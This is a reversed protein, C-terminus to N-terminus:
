LQIRTRLQYGQREIMTLCQEVPLFGLKKKLRGLEMTLRGIQQYLKAEVEENHSKIM